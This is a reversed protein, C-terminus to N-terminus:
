VGAPLRRQPPSGVALREAEALDAAFEGVGGPSVEAARRFAAVAKQAHERHEGESRRARALWVRGELVWADPADPDRRQCEVADALARAVDPGDDGGRRRTDAARLLFADGRAEWAYARGPNLAIARNAEALARVLLPRPDGGAVAVVEAHLVLSAALSAPVDPDDPMLERAREFDGESAVLDPVPDGGQALAYRARLRLAIARNYLPWGHTPRLALAADFAAIAEALLPRPDGGTHRVGEATSRLASGLGNHSQHFDPRRAIAARFHEVARELARDEPDLGWRLPAAARRLYNVALNHHSAPDDPVLRLATEFHEYAAAVAVSPDCGHENEWDAVINHVTALHSHAPAHSPDVALARALVALSERLVPRPDVGHVAEWEGRSQLCLGLETLAPRQRPDVALARRAAEEGLALTTRPDRGAIRLADGLRRHVAAVTAHAVVSDPNAALAERCAVLAWEAREQAPLTVGDDVAMVRLRRRCEAERLRVDSRAADIGAAYAQAALEFHRLAQEASGGSAAAEAQGSWVDGELQWSQYLWPDAARAARANALAEEWRGELLQLQGEVWASSGVATVRGAALAALAPARLEKELTTLRAGRQARNAIRRAEDVAEQYSRALAEGLAAAVEPTRYPVAWAAELERRAAASDGLALWGRGLALHGSGRVPAGLTAVQRTLSEIRARIMRQERRADHLPQLAAVRGISEMAAAEEGFRRSVEAVRRTSLVAHIWLGLLTFSVVAAAAAAATLRPRRRAARLLRVPGPVPRAEVPEGRLFRGLDEALERASGYRHQPEKELCRLVISQLDRPLRPGERPFRAPEELARMLVATASTGAFPPRGTLLEYLTAGLAYVDTRWDIRGADGRIQEPAMYHPTGATVTVSRDAAADLDRVLGFDVVFAKFGGEPSREFLINGPKLDRHVLGELHAAHVAGAAQRVVDAKEELSLASGARQLTPGDVLQMAIFPVGDSAGVEVVKAVHDHNVRAQSRAEKLLRAAAEGPGPHLLKVAVGRQLQLDLARFVRGMGGEGLLEGLRYRGAIVVPADREAAPRCSPAGLEGTPQEDSAWEGASRTVPEDRRAGDDFSSATM